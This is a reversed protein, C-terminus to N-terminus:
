FYFMCYLETGELFLWGVPFFFVGFSCCFFFFLDSVSTSEEVCRFKSTRNSVAGRGGDFLYGFFVRLYHSNTLICSQCKYSLERGKVLPM